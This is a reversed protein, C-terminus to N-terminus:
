TPPVSMATKKRTSAKASNSRPRPSAAHGQPNGPIADAACAGLAFIALLAAIPSPKM